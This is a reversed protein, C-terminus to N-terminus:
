RKAEPHMAAGGEASGVRDRRGCCRLYGLHRPDTFPTFSHLTKANYAIYM